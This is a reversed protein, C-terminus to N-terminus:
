DHACLVYNGTTKLNNNNTGTSFNVSYAYYTINSANETSSWFNSEWFSESVIDGKCWAMSLAILNWQTPLYRGSWLNTCM